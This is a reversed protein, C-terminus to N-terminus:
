DAGDWPIINKAVQKPALAGEKGVCPVLSISRYCLRGNILYALSSALLLVSVGYM